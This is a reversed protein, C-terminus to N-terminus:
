QVEINGFGYKTLNVGTMFQYVEVIPAASLRIGNRSIYGGTRDHAIVCAPLLDIDSHAGTMISFMEAWLPQQPRKGKRLDDLYDRVRMSYGHENMALLTLYAALTKETMGIRKVPENKYIEGMRHFIFLEAIANPLRDLTQYTLDLLIGRGSIITFFSDLYGLLLGEAIAMNGLNEEEVRKSFAEQDFGDLQALLRKASKSKLQLEM